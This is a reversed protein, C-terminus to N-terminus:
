QECGFDSCKSVPPTPAADAHAPRPAGAAVALVAAVALGAAVIRRSAAGRNTRDKEVAMSTRMTTRRRCTEVGADVTQIAGGHQLTGENLAGDRM